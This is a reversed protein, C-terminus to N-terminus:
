SFKRPSPKGGAYNLLLPVEKPGVFVVKEGSSGEAMSRELRGGRKKSSICVAGTVQAGFQYSGTQGSALLADLFENDEDIIGTSVVFVEDGLVVVRDLDTGNPWIDVNEDVELTAVAGGNEIRVYLMGELVALDAAVAKLFKRFTM